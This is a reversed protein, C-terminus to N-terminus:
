IDFGPRLEGALYMSGTILLLDGAQQKKLALSLAKQPNPFATLAAHPFYHKALKALATPAIVARKKNLTFQTCTVSAPKLAALQHLMVSIEKDASFALLLHTKSKLSQVKSVTNVTTQMKDRNHAGDIIILPKKSVVELRIPLHTSALGRVIANQPIGLKEAVTIALLANKIQHEGLM